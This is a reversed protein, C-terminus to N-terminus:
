LSFAQRFSGDDPSVILKCTFPMRAVAPLTFPSLVEKEAHQQFRIEQSGSFSELQGPNGTKCEIIDNIVLTTPYPYFPWVVHNDPIMFHRAYQYLVAHNAMGDALADQTDADVRVLSNKIGGNGVRGGQFGLFPAM